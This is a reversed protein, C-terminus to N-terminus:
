AEPIVVDIDADGSEPLDIEVEVIRADRVNCLGGGTSWTPVGGLPADACGLTGDRDVCRDSPTDIVVLRLTHRGGPVAQPTAGTEFMPPADPFDPTRCDVCIDYPALEDGDWELTLGGAIADASASGTPPNCECGCSFGFAHQRDDLQIPSCYDGGTVLYSGAPGTVHFRVRRGSPDPALPEEGLYRCVDVGADDDPGADTTTMPQGCAVLLSLSIPITLPTRM